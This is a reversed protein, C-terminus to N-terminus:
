VACLYKERFITWFMGTQRNIKILPVIMRHGCEKVWEVIRKFEHYRKDEVIHNCKSKMIFTGEEDRFIDM